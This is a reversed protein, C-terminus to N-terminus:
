RGDEELGLASLLERALLAVDSTGDINSARLIVQAVAVARERDSAVRRPELHSLITTFSANM